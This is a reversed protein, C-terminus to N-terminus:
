KSRGAREAALARVQRQVDALNAKLERIESRQAEVQAEQDALRREQEKIAEVLYADFAFPLTLSRVKEGEGVLGRDRGAPEIESVWDPFVQEVDQAIFGASAPQGGHERPNVWDFSVGRLRVIKELAGALPQVNKKLRADSSNAWSGGGPKGASNTALTLQYPATTTGIGVRVTDFEGYILPTGSDNAVFLRNSGTQSYGARHGLFVNSSGTALRGAWYGVATNFSGAANSELSYGGVATNREGTANAYLSSDGVATNGAATGSSSFLSLYGFATNGSGATNSALSSFGAATNRGGATNHYLSSGGIATNGSGVTNSFLSQYGNATNDSASTIAALSYSGMATNSDGTMTLNGAAAGLFTNNV